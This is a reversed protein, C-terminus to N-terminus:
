AVGRKRRLERRWGDQVAEPGYRQDLLNWAAAIAQELAVDPSRELKDISRHIAQLEDALEGTGDPLGQPTM